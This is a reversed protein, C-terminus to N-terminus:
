HATILGAFPRFPVRRHVRRSDHQASDHQASDHQAFSSCGLHTLLYRVDPDMLVEINTRAAGLPGGCAVCTVQREQQTM